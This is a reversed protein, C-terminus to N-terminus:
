SLRNQIKQGKKIRDSLMLYDHLPTTLNQSRNQKRRARATTELLFTKKAYMNIHASATSDKNYLYTRIYVQITYV